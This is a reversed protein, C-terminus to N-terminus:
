PFNGIQGWSKPFHYFTVQRHPLPQAWLGLPKYPPSPMTSWGWGNCFLMAEVHTPGVHPCLQWIHKSNNYHQELLVIILELNDKWSHFNAGLWQSGVLPLTGFACKLPKPLWVM